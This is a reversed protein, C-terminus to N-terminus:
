STTFGDGSVERQLLKMIGFLLEMNMLLFKRFWKKETEISTGIRFKVETSWSKGHCCERVYACLRAFLCACLKKKLFKKEM